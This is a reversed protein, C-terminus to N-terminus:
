DHQFMDGQNEDYISLYGKKGVHMVTKTTREKNTKGTIDPVNFTLKHKIEVQQSTGQQKFDLKINISGAKNFNVVAQSVEALAEGLKQEFISAELEEIFKQVDTKM